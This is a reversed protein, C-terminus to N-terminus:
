YVGAPDFGSALHRLSARDPLVLAKGVQRLRGNRVLGTLVRSFTKGDIHILAGLEDRTFPLELRVEGPMETAPLSQSLSWLLHEVRREPELLFVEPLRLLHQSASITSAAGAFVLSSSAGVKRDLNALAREVMSREFLACVCSSRTVASYLAPERLIVASFGAVGGGSLATLPLENRGSWWKSHRALSGSVKGTLLVWGSEILIVNPVRENERFLVTNRPFRHLRPGHAVGRLADSLLQSVGTEVSQRPMCSKAPFAKPALAEGTRGRQNAQLAPLYHVCGWFRKM